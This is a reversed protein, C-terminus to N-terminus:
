GDNVYLVTKGWQYLKQRSYRRCALVGIRYLGDKLVGRPILIHFGTMACDTQDPIREEIDPRFVDETDFCLVEGKPTVAGDDAVFIKQLMVQRRYLANDAGDDKVSPKLRFTGTISDGPALEPREGSM